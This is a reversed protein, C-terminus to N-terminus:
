LQIVMSDVGLTLAFLHHTRVSHDTLELLVPRISKVLYLLIPIRRNSLSFLLSQQCRRFRYLLKPARSLVSVHVRYM